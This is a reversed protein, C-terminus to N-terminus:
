IDTSRSKPHIMELYKGMELSPLSSPLISTVNMMIHTSVNAYVCLTKNM